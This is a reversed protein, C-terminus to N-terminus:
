NGRPASVVGNRSAWLPPRADAHGALDLIRQLRKARLQSRVAVPHEAGQLMGLVNQM